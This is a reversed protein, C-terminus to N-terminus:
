LCADQKKNQRHVRTPTCAPVGTYTHVCALPDVEPAMVKTKGKLYSRKGPGPARQDPSAGLWGREIKLHTCPELEPRMGEPCVCEQSLWSGLKM